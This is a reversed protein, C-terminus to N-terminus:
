MQNLKKNEKNQFHDDIARDIYSTGEADLMIEGCDVCKLAPINDIQITEGEVIYTDNIYVRIENDHECM